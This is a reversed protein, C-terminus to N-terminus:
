NFIQKHQKTSICKYELIKDVIVIEENIINSNNEAQKEQQLLKLRDCLENPDSLLFITKSIGSAYIMLGPSKLIKIFSRDRTSKKGTAKVDFYMETAFDYMLKKDPSKALDVNFNKNTIMKLLDKLEFEEGTDRFTFM